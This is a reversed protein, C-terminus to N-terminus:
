PVIVFGAAVFGVRCDADLDKAMIANGAITVLIKDPEVDQWRQLEELKILRVVRGTGDDLPWDGAYPKSMKVLNGASEIM